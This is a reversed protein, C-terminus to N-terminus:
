SRGGEQVVAAREVVSRGVPACGRRLRLRPAVALDAYCRASGPALRVSIGYM